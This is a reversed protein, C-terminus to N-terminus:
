KGSQPKSLEAVRAEAQKALATSPYFRIFNKYALVAAEPRHATKDYYLAINYANQARRELLSDRLTRAEKAHESMPYARLFVTFNAWAQDLLEQDNPSEKSLRLYAKAQNFAATEAYASDPYRFQVATYAAIAEEYQTSTDYAKGALFQAEPARGWEPGYTVIDEFLPAAREPNTYGGFLLKMRRTGLVISAINFQRELVDDHPFLGQYDKQLQNFAEFADILKGREEQILGHRYLAKPAEMSEPWTRVLRQYQKSATKLSGKERLEDAYALQDAPTEKKPKLALLSHHAHPAEEYDPKGAYSSTALIATLLFGNSLIRLFQM